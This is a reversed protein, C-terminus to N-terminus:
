LQQAFNLNILNVHAPHFFIARTIRVINIARTIRVINIAVCVTGSVNSFAVKM